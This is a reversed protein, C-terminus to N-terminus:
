GTPSPGCPRRGPAVGARALGGHQVPRPYERLLLSVAHRAERRGGRRHLREGGLGADLRFGQLAEERAVGPNGLAPERLLARLFHAGDERLGDQHDVFAREGGGHLRAIEQAYGVLEADRAHHQHAVRLLEVRHVRALREGLELGGAHLGRRHVLDHALAIRRQLFRDLRAQLPVDLAGELLEPAIDRFHLRVIDGARNGRAPEPSSSFARAFVPTM